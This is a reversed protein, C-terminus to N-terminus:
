PSVEKMAMILKPNKGLYNRAMSVNDMEVVRGNNHGNLVHNIFDKLKTDEEPSSFNGKKSYVEGEVHPGTEWYMATIETEHGDFTFLIKM